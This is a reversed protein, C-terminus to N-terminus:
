NVSLKVNCKVSLLDNQRHEEWGIVQNTSLFGANM